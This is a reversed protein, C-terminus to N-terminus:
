WEDEPLGGTELTLLSEQLASSGLAAAEGESTGAASCSTTKRNCCRIRLSRVYFTRVVCKCHMEFSLSLVICGYLVGYHCFLTDLHASRLRIIDELKLEDTDLLFSSDGNKLSDHFSMEIADSSARQLDLM